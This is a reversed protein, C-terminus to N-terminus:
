SKNVIPVYLKFFNNKRQRFRCNSYFVTFAVMSIVYPCLKENWFRSQVQNETKTTTYDLGSKPNQSLLVVAILHDATFTVSTKMGPSGVAPLLLTTMGVVDAGLLLQLLSHRYTSSDDDNTATM